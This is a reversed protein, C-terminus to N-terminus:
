CLALILSVSVSLAFCIATVLLPSLLIHRSIWWSRRRSSSSGALMVFLVSMSIGEADAYKILNISALNCASDDLFMYESCPNSAKIRDSNPCTHWDNIITDFQVGPDACAWAAKCIEDMMFRADYVKHIESTTRFRTAWTGGNLVANMFEDPLRVSNNANQGSVTHYAEGNFDSPFGADILM